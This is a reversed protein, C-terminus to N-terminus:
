RIGMRDKVNSKDSIHNRTSDYNIAALAFAEETTLERSVVLYHDHCRQKPYM